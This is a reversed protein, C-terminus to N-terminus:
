YYKRPIKYQKAYKDAVSGKKCYITVKKSCLFAYKKINKVNKRLKVIQLNKCEAFARKGIDTLKSDATVKQLYPNMYCAYDGVAVVGKLNLEKNKTGMPYVCLTRPSRMYLAGAKAFYKKNGKAVQIEELAPLNYTPIYTVLSKKNGERFGQFGTGLKITKLTECGDFTHVSLVQLKNGFTIKKLKVCGGFAYYHIEVEDGYYEDIEETCTLKSGKAFTVQKLEKCNQFAGAKLTTVSKPIVIATIDTGYFALQHVIETGKKISAVTDKRLAIYLNKSDASYLSGKIMKLNQNHEHIDIKQLKPAEGLFRDGLDKVSAGLSITKLRKCDAFASVGISVVGDGIVVKQLNPCYAVAGFGIDTVGDGVVLTKLNPLYSLGGPLIGTVSDRIIVKKIKSLPIYGRWSGTYPYAFGGEYEYQNEYNGVVGSGYFTLCGTEKNFSYEAETVVEKQDEEEEAMVAPCWAMFVSIVVMFLLCQRLRM